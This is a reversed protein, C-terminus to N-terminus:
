LADLEVTEQVQTYVLPVTLTDCSLVGNCGGRFAVLCDKIAKLTNDEAIRGEIRAQHLLHGAWIIPLWFISHSTSELKKLEKEEEDTLLGAVTFTLVIM